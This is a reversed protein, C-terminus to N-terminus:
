RRATRGAATGPRVACGVTNDATTPLHRIEAAPFRSRAARPLRHHQRYYERLRRKEEPSLRQIYRQYRERLRQKEQPSLSQWRDYNRLIAKKQEPPLREFAQYNRWIRRKQEEPLSRYRKLSRRIAERREQPLQKWQRYRLLLTRKREPDLQKWKDWLGENGQGIPASVEAEGEGSAFAGSRPLHAGGLLVVLVVLSAPALLGIKGKM